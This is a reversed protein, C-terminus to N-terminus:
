CSRGCKPPSAYRNKFTSFSSSLYVCMSARKGKEGDRPNIQKEKNGKGARKRERASESEKELERKKREKRGEEKSREKM